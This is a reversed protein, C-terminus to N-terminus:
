RAKKASPGCHRDHHHRVTCDPRGHGHRCCTKVDTHWCRPNHYHRFTRTTCHRKGHRVLTVGTETEALIKSQPFAPAPQPMIATALVFLGAALSLKQLM